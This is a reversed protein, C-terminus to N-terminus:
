HRSISAVVFKINDPSMSRTMLDITKNGLTIELNEYFINWTGRKNWKNGLMITYAGKKARCYHYTQSQKLTSDKGFEIFKKFFGTMPKQIIVLSDSTHLSDLLKSTSWAGQTLIENLSQTGLENHFVPVFIISVLAFYKKMKIAFTVYLFSNGIFVFINHCCCKLPIVHNTTTKIPQRFIIPNKRISPAM